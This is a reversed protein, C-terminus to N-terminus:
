EGRATKRSHCPKCLSQLNAPDIFLGWNGRHPVIHDVDTAGTIQEPTQALCAECLPQKNLQADRRRSWIDLSYWKRYARPVPKAIRPRQHRKPAFSM